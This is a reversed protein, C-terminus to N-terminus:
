VTPRRGAWPVEAELEAALQLLLAESAFRGQAMIGIPLGAHSMGLPLSIAPTGTLNALSAFPCFAGFERGFEEQDPNSLSLLGLDIPPKALTPTLLIDYQEFFRDMAAAGQQFTLLAAQLELATRAKGMRNWAATMPELTEDTAEHGVMEAHAALDRAVCVAINVINASNMAHFDIDPTAVDVHHGLRQLLLQTEHLVGQVDADIHLLSFPVEMVAVRLRRPKERIAALYGGAPRAPIVRSGAEPGAFVDLFAAADRVTRSIPGIGSLGNWDEIKGPGLPILGRSTKLGLLGCCSAPVRVSGGGDSAQALPVVGLAVACAAGGSSGGTTKATNWPNRTLGHAVSETTVTLGKEPTTTKAFTVLGAADALTIFTSAQESGEPVHNFYRSGSGTRVGPIHIGLDKVLFPVGALPSDPLPRAVAERARDECDQALFNHVPNTAAARALAADLLESATVAGAKVQEALGVADTQHLLAAIDTM